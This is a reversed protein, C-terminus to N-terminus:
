GVLKNVIWESDNKKNNPVNKNFKEKFRARLEEITIEEAEEYQDSAIEAENVVESTTETSEVITDENNEIIVSDSWPNRLEEIIKASFGNKIIIEMEKDSWSVGIDKVRGKAYM